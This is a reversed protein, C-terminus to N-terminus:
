DYRGYGLAVCSVMGSGLLVYSLMVSCFSGFSGYGFEGCSLLVLRLM